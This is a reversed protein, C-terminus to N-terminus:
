RGRSRQNATASNPIKTPKAAPVFNVPQNRGRGKRAQLMSYRLRHPKTVIPAPAIIATATPNRSSGGHHLSGTPPTTRNKSDLKPRAFAIKILTCNRPVVYTVGFSDSGQYLVTTQVTKTVGTPNKTRPASPIHVAIRSQRVSRRPTSS